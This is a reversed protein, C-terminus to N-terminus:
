VELKIVKYPRISKKGRAAARLNKVRLFVIKKHKELTRAPQDFAELAYLATENINMEADLNYLYRRLRTANVYNM